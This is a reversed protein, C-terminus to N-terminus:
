VLWAYWNIYMYMYVGMIIHYVRACVGEGCWMLSRSERGGWECVCPVHVYIEGEREGSSERRVRAAAAQNIATALADKTLRNFQIAPPADGQGRRDVKGHGSSHPVTNANASGDSLNQNTCVGIFSTSYDDWFWSHVAVHLYVFSGM